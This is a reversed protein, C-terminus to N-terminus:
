NNKLGIDIDGVQIPFWEQHPFEGYRFRGSGFKAGSFLDRSFSIGIPFWWKWPRATLKLSHVQFHVTNKWHHKEMSIARKTAKEQTWKSSDVYSEPHAFPLRRSVKFGQSTVFFPRGKQWCISWRLQTYICNSTTDVFVMIEVFGNRCVLYSADDDTDKLFPFSVLLWCFVADVLFHMWWSSVRWLSKESNLWGFNPLLAGFLQRSALNTPDWMKRLLSGEQRYCSDNRSPTSDGNPFLAMNTSSIHTVKWSVGGLVCRCM